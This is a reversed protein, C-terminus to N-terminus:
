YNEKKRQSIELSSGSTNVAFICWLNYKRSRKLDDIARAIPITNVGRQVSLAGKDEHRSGCM